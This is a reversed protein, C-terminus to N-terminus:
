SAETSFQMVKSLRAQCIKESETFERKLMAQGSMKGIENFGGKLMLRAQFPQQGMFAWM